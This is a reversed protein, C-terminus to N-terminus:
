CGASSPRSQQEGSAPAIELRWGAYWQLVKVSVRQFRQHGPMVKPSPSKKQFSVISKDLRKRYVLFRFGDNAGGKDAAWSRYKANSQVFTPPSRSLRNRARRRGM